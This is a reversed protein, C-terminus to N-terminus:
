TKEEPKPPSYFELLKRIAVDATISEHRWYWYTCSIGRLQSLHYSERRYTDKERSLKEVSVVADLVFVELPSHAGLYGIIKGDEPGGIARAEM